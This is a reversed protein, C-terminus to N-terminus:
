PSAEAPEQRAQISRLRVFTSASRDRVGAPLTLLAVWV